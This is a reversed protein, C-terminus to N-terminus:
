IIGSETDLKVLNTPIRVEWPEGVLKAGYSYRIGSASEGKYPSTLKISTPSIFEKIIYTIGGIIIRKDEDDELFETGVGVIDASNKTVNIRGMGEINNNNLQSRLEEVVSVHLPNPVGDETNVLTGESSWIVNTDLYNMMSTEFGPRVPINVRAAGAQLFRTFQFDDDNIQSLTIWQKKNAWFYPYFIYVMNNWEFAQEFFSIFHGERTAEEFDIEPYGEPAVNWNMADFSDFRQGSLMAICNKKLETKETERNVLPNSGKIESFGMRIRETELANNYKTLQDQYANIISNYTNIKWKQEREITLRCFVNIVAAYSVKNWTNIAAAVNQWAGNSFTVSRHGNTEINSKDILLHVFAEDDTEDKINLTADIVVDANVPRYGDPIDISINKNNFWEKSGGENYMELDKVGSILSTSTVVTQPPPPQVDEVNYKSTWYMYNYRDIDQATLPVFTKGNALCYGPPEPMELGNTNFSQRSLAYRFFASPEPIMFELMLRKGYNVIQAKYIKNVFRYVGSVHNDGLKNDFTHQNMEEVQRMSRRTTRQLSRNEIRNVAKSTTERAFNSAVRQSDNVSNTNSYNFNATTSVPGYSATVSVGAEISTTEDIVKQSETQLEFRETSSLDKEKLESEETETTIIEENTQTITHKRDRFESKMVNEIHSIEGLEYRDLEQEVLMLDAIGLVRLEHKGSTVLPM